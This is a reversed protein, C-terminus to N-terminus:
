LEFSEFKSYLFHRKFYKNLKEFLFHLGEGLMIVTDSFSYQKGNVYIHPVLEMASDLIEALFVSM